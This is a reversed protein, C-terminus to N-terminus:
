KVFSKYNVELGRINSELILKCATYLSPLGIDHSARLGSLIDPILFVQSQPIM